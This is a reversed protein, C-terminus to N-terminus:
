RRKDLIEFRGGGNRRARHMALDADHILQGPVRDEPGAIAAGISAGAHISHGYVEFPRAMERLVRGAVIELDAVSTINEVLIAFEDGGLRAATDQPRLASRLRSAVAALVGDGAAQGLSDNIEKFDDVDLFLMACTRDPRRSMRAMALGLRDMFLARNPLGTLADHMADHLLRAEIQKRDGIERYSIVYGVKEGNVALPAAMLAVDVLEGQKNMRVTEMSASGYQEVSKKMLANEHQRTEPVIFEALSGGGVEDATYGFMRTFAANTYLVQNSYVIAVAEPISSLVDEMLRQRRTRDQEGPHAVIVAERLEADLPSYTGEVALLHGNADPLTAHFPRNRGRGTTPTQPEATGTVMGRFVEDVPRAIWGVDARGMAQRAEANAYVIRGGRELFVLMPLADLIERQQASDSNESLNM